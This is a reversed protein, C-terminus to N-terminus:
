NKSPSCSRVISVELFICGFSYIDSQTTPRPSGFEDDSKLEPALWNPNGSRLSTVGFSAKVSFIALGFDILCANGESDIM